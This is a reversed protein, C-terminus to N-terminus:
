DDGEGDLHAGVERKLSVDTKKIYKSVLDKTNGINLKNFLFEFKEEVEKAIADKTKEPLGYIDKKFAGLARKRTKYIFQDETQGDKKENACNEHLWKYMKDRLDAPFHKSEYIMNQFQTALHVEAAEMEPFKNFADEPLTSAGHQVAGAM